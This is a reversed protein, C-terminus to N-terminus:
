PMTDRVLNRDLCRNQYNCTTESLLECAHCCAGEKKTLEIKKESCVPDNSCSIIGQACKKFLKNMASEDTDDIGETIISRNIPMWTVDEQELMMKVRQEPGTYETEHKSYVLFIFHLYSDISHEQGIHHKFGPVGRQRAARDIQQSELGCIFCGVHGETWQRRCGFTTRSKNTTEAM